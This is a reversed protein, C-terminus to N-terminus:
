FADSSVIEGFNRTALKQFVGFKTTGPALVIVRNSSDYSMGPGNGNSDVPMSDMTEKLFKVSGDCFAFNAGGPHLSGAIMAYSEENGNYVPASGPSYFTRYKNQGNIPFITEMLCDTYYGSNWWHYEFGVGTGMKTHAKEGFLLTNSTGDTIDALRTNSYPYIVGNLNAIRQSFTPNSSRIALGWIGMVGAYSTFQQKLGSTTPMNYTTGIPVASFVLPDSPCWLVSTGIGAVTANVRSQYSSFVNAANFSSQGESYPMLRVLVSVGDTTSGTSDKISSFNGAPFSGNSSEYNHAALALQKLNNTCQMRRAAERAAQVAPLLLAILVAIIAIVVLLEILTFARKRSPRLTPPNM